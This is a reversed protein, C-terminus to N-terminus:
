GNSLMSLANNYATAAELECKFRGLNTKKNNVTISAMWNNRSKDWSVGKYKSTGKYHTYTNQRQTIVELNDVRNDTKINNIHNVVLVQGNPTHNLFAMAVLQHVTYGKQKGNIFLSIILYGRAGLHSTLLREKKRKFSKIRGLSSAKYGECGKIDKWIEMNYRIEEM